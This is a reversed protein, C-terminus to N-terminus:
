NQKSLVSYREGDHAEYTVGQMEFLESVTAFGYGQAKLEKIIAPLIKVTETNGPFCHMLFIAGDQAGGIVNNYREQATVTPDWDRSDVGVIFPLDITDHMLQSIAIYPPRFTAPREGVLSEVKKQVLEIEQKLTEEDMKDMQLHSQSHNGLEHGEDYARKVVDETVFTINNGILYFTAKVDEEALIDLIEVMITTNPGDDFTLAVFKEPMEEEEGNVNTDQVDDTAPEKSEETSEPEASEAPEQGESEQASEPAKSQEQTQSEEGSEVKSEHISEVASSQAVNGTESQAGNAGCGVLLTMCLLMALVKRLKKM